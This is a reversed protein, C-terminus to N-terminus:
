GKCKSPLYLVLPHRRIFTKIVRKLDEKDQGEQDIYKGMAEKSRHDEGM